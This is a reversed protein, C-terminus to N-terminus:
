CIDQFGVSANLAAVLLSTSCLGTRRGAFRGGELGFASVRIARRHVLQVLNAEKRLAESWESLTIDGGLCLDVLHVALFFRRLGQWISIAFNFLISISSVLSLFCDKLFFNFSGPLFRLLILPLFSLSCLLFHHIFSLFLRSPFPLISSHM